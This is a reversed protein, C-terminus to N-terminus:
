RPEVCVQESPADGAENYAVVRFCSRSGEPIDDITVTVRGPGLRAALEGDRLVRFGQENGAQDSWALEVYEGDARDASVSTPAAPAGDVACAPREAWDTDERGVAGVLFCTRADADVDDIRVGDQDPLLVTSVREDIQVAVGTAAPANNTWTLDVHGDEIDSVTLETPRAAPNAAAPERLDAPAISGPEIDAVTDDEPEDELMSAVALGIGVAAALAVVVAVLWPWRRRRREVTPAVGPPAPTMASAGGITQDFDQSAPTRVRPVPDITRTDADVESPGGPITMTTVPVDVARQADQLARGFEAASEFREAPDKALGQELAPWCAAPLVAEPLPEAPQTLIRTLMPALTEDTVEFFAPRGRLAAYATAALSYVDAAPSPRVGSLVEPAAYLPTAKVHGSRSHTVGELRAIGFDVLQPEGFEDFLVNDPKVDLHLVGAAHAAELAGALKITWALVGRWSVEGGQEIRDGLTGGSLYAMVLYPDGQETTGIDHVVVIHPHGSLSGVAGVERRFRRITADDSTGVSLVKIAVKRRFATQYARYVTGFGGRGVQEVDECGEFRPAL